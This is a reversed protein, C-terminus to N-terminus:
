LHKLKAMIPFEKKFLEIQDKTLKDPVDPWFNFITKKDFSFLWPGLKQEVTDVLWIKNKKNNKYFIYDELKEKDKM